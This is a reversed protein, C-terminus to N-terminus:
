RLVDDRKERLFSNWQEIIRLITKFPTEIIIDLIATFINVRSYREALWQGTRIFPTLLFDSLSTLFGPDEDIVAYERVSYSIRYAFFSVTSLFVFFIIGSVLNFGVAHLGYSIAGLTLLSTFGYFVGFANGSTAARGRTTLTYSIPTASSYVIQKLDALIKTTNRAGPIKIGLGVIAMYIPPFLLNIGLPLYSVSGYLFLEYPVEIIIGLFVKTIFLFIVAQVVSRRLRGSVVQYQSEAVSRAKEMLVSPTTALQELGEPSTKIIERLILYPAIHRRVLRFMRHPKSGGTEEALQHNLDAFNEGAVELQADDELWRPFARSFVGYRITAVDSKLLAKHAAAYLALQDEKGVEAHRVFSAYTFEVIAAESPNPHLTRGLEVSLLQVVATATAEPDAGGHRQAADQLAGYRGVLYDLYALEDETVSDNTLYRTKTLERILEFGIGETSGTKLERLLFREIAGRLFLHQERYEVANRVQEYLFYAGATIEPVHIKAGTWVPTKQHRLLEVLGQMLPSLEPGQVTPAAGDHTELPNRM